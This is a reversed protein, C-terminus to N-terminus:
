ASLMMSWRWSAPRHYVIKASEMAAMSLIWDSAMPGPCRKVTAALSTPVRSIDLFLSAAMWQTGVWWPTWPVSVASSIALAAASPLWGSSASATGSSSLHSVLKEWIALTAVSFRERVVLYHIELRVPSGRRFYLAGRPFLRLRLSRRLQESVPRMRPMM